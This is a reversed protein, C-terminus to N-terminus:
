SPLFFSEEETVCGLGRAREGRRDVAVEAGEFVELLLERGRARGLEAGPPGPQDELLAGPLQEHALRAVGLRRQGVVADDRDQGHITHM